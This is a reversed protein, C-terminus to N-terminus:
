AAPGGYDGRRPNLKYVHKGLKAASYLTHGSLFLLVCAVAVFITSVADYTSLTSAIPRQIIAIAAPLSAGFLATTALSLPLAKFLFVARADRHAARRNAAFKEIQSSSTGSIETYWLSYLITVVTLLLSAASLLDAM